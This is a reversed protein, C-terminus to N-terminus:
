RRMRERELRAGRLEFRWDRLERLEQRLGQRLAVITICLVITTAIIAMLEISMCVVDTGGRSKASGRRRWQPM